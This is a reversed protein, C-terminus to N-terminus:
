ISKSVSLRARLCYLLRDHLQRVSVHCRQRGVELLSERRGAFFSRRGLFKEFGHFGVRAVRDQKEHDCGFIFHGHRDPSHGQTSKSTKPHRNEQNIVCHDASGVLHLSAGM